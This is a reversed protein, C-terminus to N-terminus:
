RQTVRMNKYYIRQTSKPAWSADSGGYWTNFKINEVGAPSDLWRMKDFRQRFSNAVTLELVGNSQGPTNMKCYLSVTRWSGSTFSPFVPNGKTDKNYRWVDHGTTDGSATAINSYAPHQDRLDRPATRKGYYVYAHPAGNARWMLRASAATPEWNGGQIDGAGFQVGMGFKGGRGFDFTRQRDTGFRVDFTLRIETAGKCVNDFRINVGGRSGHENPHCMVELEGRNLKLRANGSSSSFDNPISFNKYCGSQYTDTKRAGLMLVAFALVAVVYVAFWRRVRQRAM